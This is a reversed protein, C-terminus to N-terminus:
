SKLDQAKSADVLAKEQDAFEGDENGTLGQAAALMRFRVFAAYNNTDANEGLLSFNSLGAAYMEVLGALVLPEFKSEAISLIGIV